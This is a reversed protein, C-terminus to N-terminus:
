DCFLKWDADSVLGKMIAPMTTDVAYSANCSHGSQINITASPMKHLYESPHTDGTASRHSPPVSQGVNPDLTKQLVVAEKKNIDLVALL